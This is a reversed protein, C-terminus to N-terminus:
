TFMLSGTDTAVAADGAAKPLNLQLGLPDSHFNWPILARDLSKNVMQYLILWLALTLEPM